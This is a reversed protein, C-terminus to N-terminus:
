PAETTENKECAVRRLAPPKPNPQCQWGRRRGSAAVSPDDREAARAELWQDVEHELWAIRNEGVRIHRPFKGDEELRRIHQRTFVIGKERLAVRNLVRLAM